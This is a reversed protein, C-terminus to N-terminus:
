DKKKVPKWPQPLPTRTFMDWQKQIQEPPAKGTHIYLGYRLMLPKVPEIILSGGCTLSACMWGDSRVHFASPHNTNSPHDFLTIGETANATIPGSYDVWKAPKRFIDKEGEAGESNRITGGGDNVCITKAMRVGILGFPTKGLTITKDKAEIQLDIVLLEEGNPLSQATTTRREVLLVTNNTENIWHNLTTISAHDDADEFKEVRQHIIRGKSRDEWFSLGNVDMHSIWVSYHHSHGEPDHPHGMRTLSRGSPGIVPFIFPRRVDLGFHYRAIEQGDRQFSVQQGPQPIVQMHPVPKPGKEQAPPEASICTSIVIGILTFFSPYIYTKM